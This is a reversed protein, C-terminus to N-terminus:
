LTNVSSTDKPVFLSINNPVHPTRMEPTNLGMKYPFINVEPTQFLSCYINLPSPISSNWYVSTGENSISGVCRYENQMIVMSIVACM